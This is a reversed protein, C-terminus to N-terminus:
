AKSVLVTIEVAFSDKAPTSFVLNGGLNKLTQHVISLGIGCGAPVTGPIRYFRKLVPDWHEEPIGPGGDMVRILAHHNQQEIQVTIAAKERSYAMGNELLNGLCESLMSPNPIWTELSTLGNHEFVLERHHKVAMPAYYECVERVLKILDVKERRHTLWEESEARLLSLMQTALRSTQDTTALLVDLHAQRSKRDEAQLALEARSRINALPTKLQHSANGLFAERKKIASGLRSLLDNMAQVLSKVEFPVSQKILALDDISRRNISNELKNLPKLSFGIGFWLMSAVLALPLLLRLLSRLFIEDRMKTQADFFQWVTIGVWGSYSPTNWFNRLHAARVPQGRYEAVFLQPRGAAAKEIEVNPMPANSYGAFLTSDAARLQYFFVHGLSDTISELIEESLADGNYTDAQEMLTVSLISLSKDFTQQAIKQSYQFTEYVFFGTALLLPLLILVLLRNRLRGSVNVSPKNSSRLQEASDTM